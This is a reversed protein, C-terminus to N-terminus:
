LYLELTVSYNYYFDLLIKRSKKEKLLCNWLFYVLVLFKLIINRSIYFMIIRLTVCGVYLGFSRGANIDTYGLAFNMHGEFHFDPLCSLSAASELQEM